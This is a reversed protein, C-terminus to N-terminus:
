GRERYKEPAWAKFRMREWELWEALTKREERTIEKNKSIKELISNIDEPPSLASGTYFSNPVKSSPPLTSRIREIDIGKWIAVSIIIAGFIAFLTGPTAQKIILFREGWTAKLDGAKDYVGRYFLRYGLYAFVLGIAVTALRYLTLFLVTQSFESMFVGRPSLREIFFSLGWLGLAIFIIGVGIFPHNKWYWHMKEYEQGLDKQTEIVPEGSIKITEEIKQLRRRRYKSLKSFYKMTSFHLYALIFASLIVMIRSEIRQVAPIGYGVLVGMLVFIVTVVTWHIRDFHRIDEKLQKYEELLISNRLQSIDAGEKM